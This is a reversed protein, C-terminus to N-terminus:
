VDSLDVLSNMKKFKRNPSNSVYSEKNSSKHPSDFDNERNQEGSQRSDYLSM